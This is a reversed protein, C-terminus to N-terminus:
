VINVFAGCLPELSSYILMNNTEYLIDCVWWFDNSNNHEYSLVFKYKM